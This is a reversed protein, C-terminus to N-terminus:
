PAGDGLAEHDRLVEFAARPLEDGGDGALLVAGAPGQGGPLVLGEPLAHVVHLLADGVQLLLAGGHPILDLPQAAAPAGALASEGEVHFWLNAAGLLSNWRCRRCRRRRALLLHGHHLTVGRWPQLEAPVLLLQGYFCSSSSGSIM